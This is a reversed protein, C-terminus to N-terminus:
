GCGTALIQDVGFFGNEPMNFDLIAPERNLYACQLNRARPVPCRNRQKSFPVDNWYQLNLCTLRDLVVNHSPKGCAPGNLLM